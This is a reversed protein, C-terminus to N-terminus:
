YRPKGDLIDQLVRNGAVMATAGAGRRQHAADGQADHRSRIAGPDDHWGDRNLWTALHPIFRDPTACDRHANAIATCGSTIEDHTGRRTAQQYAKLAERKGERRPWISWLQEFDSPYASPKGKPTLPSIDNRSDNDNKSDNDPEKPNNQTKNM